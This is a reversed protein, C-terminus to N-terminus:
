EEKIEGTQKNKMRTWSIFGYVDYVFFLTFCVIMPIYGVNEISALVWLVILVIDNAAYALGYLPIRLFTLAAAIFSTTVSITSTILNTTNIADLIFYFAVTVVTALIIMVIVKVRTLKGVKVQASDKYPNRLWSITAVLAAPASMGLYTIMEGYYGFFYSVVGYFVAFIMTLIQGIVNGKVIFILATVGTISSVLTLYDRAGCVVFSVVIAAVSFVWLIIDFKNFLKFVNKM